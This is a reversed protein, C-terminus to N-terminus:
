MASVLDFLPMYMALLLFAIAAGLVIIILPEALTTLTAIANNSESEYYDAARLLMEGLQATSEGSSTLRLLAGPFIGVSRLSDTLSQGSALREDLSALSQIVYHNGTARTAIRVAQLINVGASLLSGLTRAFRATVIKRTLEGFFPLQFLMKHIGFKVKPVTVGALGLALVCGLTIGSFMWHDRLFSSIGLVHRTLTPLEAGFTEYMSSFVPVVFIILVSVVLVATLTVILPYALASRIKKAAAEFRERYEAIREFSFALDGSSEGADVFSVYVSDFIYPFAGLAKALTKGSEVQEILNTLVQRLKGDRIQELTLRLSEIISVHARLLIALQRSMRTLEEGKFTVIIWQDFRSLTVQADGIVIQRNTLREQLDALDAATAIGSVTDGTLTKGSYRYRM